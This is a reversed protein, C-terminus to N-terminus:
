RKQCKPCFHSSRQAVLIRRIPARCTLCPEGTRQYVRHSLQFFGKRGQADVYDSISSGGAAIAETLVARIADFLRRPREGRLRAAMALPHIGARFLAEDAYINGMGRLFAQNLLLAKIRTKRRKLASAFEEYPVDLPEPGLKAVRHPFEESFQVCGFQRSDDYLLVGRDLTLIAHTHKGAPGGLLLRGTMGLHIVLYGQGAALSAASGSASSSSGDLSMLIFKGYRKVAAIRLGQIRAAMRDPDGGRLVRTSRFEASVIHRGVLPAISRTVTEVEPLEPM